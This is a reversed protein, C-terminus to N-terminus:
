KYKEKDGTESSGEGGLEEPSLQVAIRESFTVVSCGSSIEVILHSFLSLVM